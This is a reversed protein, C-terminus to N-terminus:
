CVLKGDFIDVIIKAEHDYTANLLQKIVRRAIVGGETVSVGIQFVCVCVCVCARICARM